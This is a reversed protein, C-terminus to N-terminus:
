KERMTVDFVPYAGAELAERLVQEHEEDLAITAKFTTGSHFDGSSLKVGEETNYISKLNRQWDNFVLKIEM